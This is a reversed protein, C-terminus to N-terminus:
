FKWTLTSYLGWSFPSDSGYREKGAKGGVIFGFYDTLHYEQEYRLYYQSKCNFGKEWHPGIGIFMRDTISTEYRRYWLHEVMPVLYISTYYKPAYYESDRYKTNTTTSGELAVRFKWYASSYLGKDIKWSYTQNLNGDSVWVNSFGANVILDESFRYEASINAEQGKKGFLLAKPPMNLTYSNYFGTLTLHDTPKYRLGAMFGPNEAHYDMSAEGFISLDRDLRWDFGIAGRFINRRKGEQNSDKPQSTLLWLMETYIKRDPYIPQDLRITIGSGDVFSGENSYNSDITLTRKEQLELSRQLKKVALDAPYTKALEAALSRAQEWEDNENLTYAMGIQAAKDKPDLTASIQFEELALRFWGRYYHVYALATRINTNYPARYHLDTLYEDAYSLQDNYIYWWGREVAVDMKDPNEIYVGDPRAFAPTEKELFELIEDAARQDELEILCAYIGQLTLYNDPYSDKGSKKLEEHLERYMALATDPQRCYLYASAVNQRLWSPTDIGEKRLNEYEKILDQMKEAQFLALIRDFRARIKLQEADEAAEPIGKYKEYTLINGDIIDIAKRYDKWSLQEAALDGMIRKKVAYSVDDGSDKLMQDALIAAKIDLLIHYKANVSPRYFKNISLIKQNLDYAEIYKRSLQLLTVKLFLLDPNSPDAAILEDSIKMAEQIGTKEQILTEVLMRKADADDPNNKLYTKLFNGAEDYRGEVIYAECPLMELWKPPKQYKKMEDRIFSQAEAAHGAGVMSFAKGKVASPNDGNLALSKEYCDIAEAYRGTRRYATGAADFVNAKPSYSDKYNSYVAIADKYKEAWVLVMIKDALIVPKEYNLEILRDFIVLAEDYKGNRADHVAKSHIQSLSKNLLERDKGASSIKRSIEDIAENLKGDRILRDTEPEVAMEPKETKQVSTEETAAREPKIASPKNEVPMSAIEKALYAPAKREKYYEDYLNRAEDKRGAWSLVLIYDSMMAVDNENNKLLGKLIDLSEQHRGAKAAEVAKGHQARAYLKRMWEPIEKLGKSRADLYKLAKESNGSNACAEVMLRVLSEDKENKQLYKEFLSASESYKGLKCYVVAMEVQVPEPIKFDKPIGDYAKLAEDYRGAWKFIVVADCLVDPANKTEALVKKIGAAAEDYKGNRANVVAQRRQSDTNRAFLDDLIDASTSFALM